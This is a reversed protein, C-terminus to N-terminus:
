SGWCRKGDPVPTKNGLHDLTFTDCADNTQDGTPTAVLTYTTATPEGDGFSITYHGDTTVGTPDPCGDANYANFRTFCRELVQAGSMLSSIADARRSKRVQDVFAPYALVTLVALISLVIM